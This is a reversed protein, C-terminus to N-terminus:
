LALDNIMYTIRPSDLRSILQGSNDLYAQYVRYFRWYPTVVFRVRRHLAALVDM